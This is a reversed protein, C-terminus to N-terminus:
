NLFSSVTAYNEGMLGIGKSNIKIFFHTLSFNDKLHGRLLWVWIILTENGVILYDNLNFYDCYRKLLQDWPLTLLIGLLDFVSFTM